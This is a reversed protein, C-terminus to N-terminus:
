IINLVTSSPPLLCKSTGFADFVQTSSWTFNVKAGISRQVEATNLYELFAGDFYAFPESDRIDYASRGTSLAVRLLDTCIGYATSCLANTDSEDGEGQPDYLQASNQCRIISDKCGGSDSFNSLANLETTQDIAQIGYTNQDYAFKPWWPAQIVEDVIGNVIGLSMLKIELTKKPSIEGTTRKKNQTEYYAAFAPGYTGGYSEAFLHIGAPAKATSNPHTGPNYQPFASLFGQLFHWSASAAIASTNQTNDPLQSAFTGNLFDWSPVGGPVPRPRYLVGTSLTMSANNLDDYSFGVQTPQDIFLLNSSRDWGWLSTQTGYSGDPLQVVECPGVGGFFGNLSSAGPGGNLWITLPATEPSTRAEVFWFFTNISYNQQYPTLTFPPLNIYGTYQKQNLFATTCTGPEPQKYSITITPDIPSKLIKDYTVYPPFQSISPQVLGLAAIIVVPLLQFQHPMLDANPRPQFHYIPPSVM